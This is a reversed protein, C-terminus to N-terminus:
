PHRWLGIRRRTEGAHAARVPRGRNAQSSRALRGRVQRGRSHDVAPAGAVFRRDHPLHAGQGHQDGRRMRGIQVRPEDCLLPACGTPRDLAARGRYDTRTGRPSAGPPARVRAPATRGRRGHRRRSPPCARTFFTPVASPAPARFPTRHACRRPIPAVAAAPGLERARQRAANPADNGEKRGRPSDSSTGSRRPNRTRVYTTRKADLSRRNATVEADSLPYRHCGPHFHSRRASACPHGRTHAVRPIGHGKPTKGEPEGNEVPPRVRTAETPAPLPRCPVIGGQKSGGQGSRATKDPPERGM